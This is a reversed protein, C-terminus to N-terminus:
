QFSHKINLHYGLYIDKVSALANGINTINLYLAFASIYKYPKEAQDNALFTSSFTPGKLIEVKFKPKRRLSKFIGSVFDLILTSLFILVSVFGSNNNLWDIM